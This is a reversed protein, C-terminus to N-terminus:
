LERLVERAEEPLQGYYVNGEPDAIAIIRNRGGFAVAGPIRVSVGGKFEGATAGRYKRSMRDKITMWASPDDEFDAYHDFHHIRWHWILGDILEKDYTIHNNQAAAAKHIERAMANWFEEIESKTDEYEEVRGEMKADEAQFWMDDVWAAGSHPFRKRTMRDFVDTCLVEFVDEDPLSSGVSVQLVILIPDEIGDAIKGVLAPSKTAYVGELSYFRSDDYRQGNTGNPVLGRKMISRLNDRATVHFYMETAASKELLQKARM